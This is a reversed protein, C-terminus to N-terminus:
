GLAIAYWLISGKVTNNAAANGTLNASTSIYLAANEVSSGAIIPVAPYGNMFMYANATAEWFTTSTGTFELTPNTAATASFGFYTSPNNSFANTGGYELKLTAFVPIIAIGAGQASIVSIPTGNLAKIQVNTLSFSTLTLGISAGNPITAVAGLQGTSSNVTVYQQNSVAVGTIGAVYCANVQGNGSGQTGLRMVNSEANVGSNSIYINSSESGTTDSSGANNGIMVNYSGSTISLGSQWGLMTNEGGSTLNYASKFGISSNQSGTIGSGSSNGAQSGIITNQGGSGGNWMTAFGLITNDNGSIPGNAVASFGIGTNNNGTNSLMSQYGIGVLGTASTTYLLAEYGIGINGGYTNSVLAQFGIGVSGSGSAGGLAQFGLGVNSDGTIASCAGNGVAVNTGGSVNSILAQYGVATNYQGSTSNYLAQLGVAVNGTGSVDKFLAEYGVATAGGGNGSANLTAYGFATNTGDTINQLAYAGVATNYQQNNACNQMAQLGIAVTFYAIQPSALAEHGIAVNGGGVTNAQQVGYGIAINTNGTTTSALATAGIGINDYAGSFTPSSGLILNNSADGAFNITL